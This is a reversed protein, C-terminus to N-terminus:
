DLYICLGLCVFCYYLVWLFCCIYDFHAGGAFWYLVLCVNSLFGVLVLTFAGGFGIVALFDVLGAFLSVGLYVGHPVWVGFCVGSFVMGVWFGFCGWFVGLGCFMVFGFGGTYALTIVM